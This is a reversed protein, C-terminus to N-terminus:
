RNHVTYSCLLFSLKSRCRKTIGVHYVWIEPSIKSYELYIISSYAASGLWPRKRDHKQRSSAIQSQPWAWKITNACAHPLTHVRSWNKHSWSGRSWNKCSCNQIIDVTLVDVKMPDVRYWSRLHVLYQHTLSRIKSYNTSALPWCTDVPISYHAKRNVNQACHM